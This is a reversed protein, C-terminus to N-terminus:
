EKTNTNKRSKKHSTRLKHEGGRKLFYSLIPISLLQEVVEELRKKLEGSTDDLNGSIHRLHKAIHILHYTIIAFSVGFVIIAVSAVLYYLTQAFIFVGM